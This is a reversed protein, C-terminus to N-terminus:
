RNDLWLGIEAGTYLGWCAAWFNITFIASKLYFNMIGKTDNDFIIQNSTSKYTTLLYDYLGGVSITICATTSALACLAVLATKRTTSPANWHEIIRVWPCCSHLLYLCPSLSEM